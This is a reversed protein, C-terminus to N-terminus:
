RGFFTNFISAYIFVMFLLSFVIGAGLAWPGFGTVNLRLGKKVLLDAIWGGTYWINAPFLLFFISLIFTEGAGLLRTEIGQSNTAASVIAAVIIAAFLIANFGVRREEWWTIIGGATQPGSPRALLRRLLTMLM